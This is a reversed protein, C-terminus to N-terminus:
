KPGITAAGAETVMLMWIRNSTAKTVFCLRPDGVYILDNVLALTVSRIIMYHLAMKKFLQIKFSVVGYLKTLALNRGIPM